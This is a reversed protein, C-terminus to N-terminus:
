PCGKRRGGGAKSGLMGSLFELVEGFVGLAVSIWWMVLYSDTADVLEGGMFAGVFSGLQHSLFVIGFLAGAHAPGFQQTVIASTMPMTALWRLGIAAGFIITSTASIPVILYAAILALIAAPIAFRM